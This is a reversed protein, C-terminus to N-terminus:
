RYVSSPSVGAAVAVREVTVNRYGHGYFLDLAVRQIRSMVEIKRREWATGTFEVASESM